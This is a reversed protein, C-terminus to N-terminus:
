KINNNQKKSKSKCVGQEDIKSIGFCQHTLLFDKKQYTKKLMAGFFELNPGVQGLFPRLLMAFRGHNDDDLM